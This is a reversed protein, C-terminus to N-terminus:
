TLERVAINALMKTVEKMATVQSSSDGGHMFPAM